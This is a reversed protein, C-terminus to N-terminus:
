YLYCIIKFKEPDVSYIKVALVRLNINALQKPPVSSYDKPIPMDASVTKILMETTPSDLNSVAFFCTPGMIKHRIAIEGAAINPLTYVFTAPSALCEASNHGITLQHNRDTQLSGESNFMAIAVFEREDSPLNRLLFESAVFALKSMFDMKFFKPYDGILARYVAAPTLPKPLERAIDAGNLLLEYPTFILTAEPTM